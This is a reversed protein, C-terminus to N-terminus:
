IVVFLFRLNRLDAAPSIYAKQFLDTTTSRLAGVSGILLGRPFDNSLGSTVINDGQTILENQTVLDFTLGLGHEGRMLGRAGSDVAEANIVVSPDTILTAESSNPGVKTIKGVLIGPSIVVPQNLKIGSSEGKDLVLTQSFGTPDAILVETALLNFNGQESFNLAKRLATNEDRATKLRANEFSLEDITHNLQANEKVLSKITFLTKFVTKVGNTGDTATKSVAGYSISFARKFFNLSGTKDLIFILALVVFVAFLKTFTKTYIFRM